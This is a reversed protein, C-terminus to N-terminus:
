QMEIEIRECCLELTEIAIESAKANLSPGSLKCPWAATLKWTMVAKHNEDRLTIRVDRLYDDRSAPKDRVLQRWQWLGAHGTIGRRLTVNPYKELGALKRVFNGANEAVQDTGERYEIVAHEGDLGSAEMFAGTTIPETVGALPPQMVEFAFNFAAYPNKRVEPRAM